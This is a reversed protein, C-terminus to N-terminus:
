GHTDASSYFFMALYALEALLPARSVLNPENSPLSSSSCLPAPKTFTDSISAVRLVNKRLVIDNSLTYAVSVMTTVLCFCMLHSSNVETQMQKAGNNAFEVVRQNRDAFKVLQLISSKCM